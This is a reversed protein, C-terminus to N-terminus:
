YNDIGQALARLRAVREQLPPHTRFMRVFAGGAFPNVIFLSQSAPNGFTIPRRRNAIELKELASALALPQGITKAGLYDAKYERNRSIAAQVLFAAIPALIMGVLALVMTIWNGERNRSGGFMMNWGFMRAMFSIAGALTAAVSMVLIDRNRVHSVEHALVGRLEDESLTHLLGETVAVVAHEPNRGTAFANPTQTPVMAVKPMPINAQQAVQRVIRYLGPAEAETVLKARYSWLVIKDSAFYSVANMIAAFVLFLLVGTWGGFSLSGIVWGFIVFIVTLLVFLAFTRLYAGM